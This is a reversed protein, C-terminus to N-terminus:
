GGPAAAPSGAVVAGIQAATAFDAALRNKNIALTTGTATDAGAYSGGVGGWGFWTTQQGPQTGPGGSAFGLTWTSPMGCIEDPGSFAVKTVAAAREPTLM